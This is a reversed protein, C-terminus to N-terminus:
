DGGPLEPMEAWHTVRAVTWGGCWWVPEVGSHDVYGERVRGPTAVLVPVPLEPLRETVPIWKISSM